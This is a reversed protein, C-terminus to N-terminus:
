PLAQALCRITVVDCNNIARMVISRSGNVFYPKNLGAGQYIARIMVDNSFGVKDLDTDQNVWFGLQSQLAATLKSADKPMALASNSGLFVLALTFILRM